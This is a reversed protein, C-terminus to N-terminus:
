LRSDSYYQTTVDRSLHIKNTRTKQEIEFVVCKEADVRFNKRSLSLNTFRYDRDSVFDRNYIRCVACPTGASPRTLPIKLLSHGLIFVM